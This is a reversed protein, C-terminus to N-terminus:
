VKGNIVADAMANKTTQPSMPPQKHGLEQLIIRIYVVKRATIYYLGALEAANALSMLNKFIHTHQTRSWQKPPITTNSSLFFHGGARGRAKPKSFYSAYSHVALSVMNSTHYSLVADEQM